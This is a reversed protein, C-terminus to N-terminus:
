SGQHGPLDSARQPARVRGLLGLPGRELLRGLPSAMVRGKTKEFRMVDGIRRDLFQWSAQNDVSDDGLWFLVVSGYVGSLTARKSYWNYDDSSDGLATWIADASGWVARAGDTAHQPLAFLAAGRRVLERDAIELRLRVARAVKESYRMEDHEGAAAEAAFRRAMEADGARHYALALDVAGRPFLARALGPAVGADEAAARLTTESWGDFPVHTCAAELLREAASPDSEGPSAFTESM